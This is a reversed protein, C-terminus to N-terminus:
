SFGLSDRLEDEPTRDWGTWLQEAERLLEWGPTGIVRGLRALREPTLRVDGSEVRKYTSRTLGLAIWVDEQRLKAVKRHKAIVYGLVCDLDDFRM